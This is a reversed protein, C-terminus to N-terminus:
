KAILLQEDRVHEGIWTNIGLYSKNKEELYLDNKKEKKVELFVDYELPENVVFSILDELLDMSNGLISYKVMDNATADKFLIRFKSIRNTVFTGILFDENLSCNKQGLSGYQWTPIVSDMIMCELIEIQSFDMYFKIISSLTSASKQKMSLIGIYPLLKNLDIRNSDDNINVYLGLLSLMYKSFDDQLDDQYQVYYKQKEWIPYIFKQINNNFIDLFHYLEKDGTYSDLVSENYHSPLPSSVGFIGLSNLTMQVKIQKTYDDAQFVINSIESKPFALSPNSGFSIRKYLQNSNEHPHLEKLYYSIVRVAQPVTYKAINQSITENISELDM